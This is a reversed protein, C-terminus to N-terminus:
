LRRAAILYGDPAPKGRPYDEMGIVFETIGAIGCLKAASKVDDRPSGSVIACPAVKAAEIYFEVSSRIVIESPDPVLRAYHARLDAADLVASRRPLSPFSELLSSHIDLWSHGFVLACVAGLEAHVGNAGLWEVIARGWMTESDILTGDLDFLFAAPKMDLITENM